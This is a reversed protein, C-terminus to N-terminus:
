NNERILAEIRELEDEVNDLQKNDTHELSIFKKFEGADGCDCWTEVHSGNEDSWAHGGGHTSWDIDECLIGPQPCHLACENKRSCCSGECYLKM